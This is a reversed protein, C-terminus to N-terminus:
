TCNAHTINKVHNVRMTTECYKGDHTAKKLFLIFVIYTNCINKVFVINIYTYITYLLIKINKFSHTKYM